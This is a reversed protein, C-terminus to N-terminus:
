AYSKYSNILILVSISALGQVFEYLIMGYPVTGYQRYCRIKRQVANNTRCRAQPRLAVYGKKQIRHITLYRDTFFDCNRNILLTQVHQTTPQKLRQSTKQM